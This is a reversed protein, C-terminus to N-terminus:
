GQARLQIVKTKIEKGLIRYMERGLKELAVTKEPLYDYQDYVGEVGGQAHGLVRERIHQQINLRSMITRSSRRLDHASWGEVGSKKQIKRRDKVNPQAHGAAGYKSAFVFGTGTGAVKLAQESLPVLNVVSTKNEVQHWVGEKIDEYKMSAVEGPRQATLLILRLMRKANDSVVDMSNWVKKIEEDNLFRERPKEVGVKELHQMPHITIWGDALAPKFLVRLFSYLRNASVESQRVKKKLLKNIMVPTIDAVPIDGLLPEVEMSWKRAEEKKTSAAKKKFKPLSSYEAWLAAMDQEGEVVAQLAAQKAVMRPDTGEGIDEMFKITATAAEKYTMTEKYTHTQRKGQFRFDIFWAQKTKSVRLGLRGGHISNFNSPYYRGAETVKEQWTGTFKIDNWTKM